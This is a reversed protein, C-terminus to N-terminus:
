RSYSQRVVAETREQAIGSGFLAFIAAVVGCMKLTVEAARCM